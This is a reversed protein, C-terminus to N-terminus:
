YLFSMPNGAGQLDRLAWMVWVLAGCLGLYAVGTLGIRLAPMPTHRAVGVFHELQKARAEVQEDNRRGATVQSVLNGFHEHEDAGYPRPDILALSPGSQAIRITGGLETLGLLVMLVLLELEALYALAAGLVLSAFVLSVGWVRSTGIAALIRGGDLPMIPLLNFLNLLAGWAALAGIFAWEEGSAFFAALCAFALVSGWVPGNIAIYASSTASRAPGEGVAVGGFFPIFYIGRVRVGSRWMAFVHGCEHVGILVVFALAFEWSVLLSYAGITAAAATVKVSKLLKLAMVGLKPVVKIAFAVLGWPIAAWSRARKAKVGDASGEASGESPEDPGEHTWAEPYLAESSTRAAIVALLLGAGDLNLVGGLQNPLGPGLDAFRLHVARGEITAVRARTTRGGFTFDTMAVRISEVEDYRLRLGTSLDVIGEEGVSIGERRYSVVKALFVALGLLAAVGFPYSVLPGVWSSSVLKLAGYAVLTLLFAQVGLGALRPRFIARRLSDTM